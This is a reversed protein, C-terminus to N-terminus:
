SFLKQYELKFTNNKAMIDTLIGVGIGKKYAGSNAILLFNERAQKMIAITSDKFETNVYDYDDSEKISKTELGKLRKHYELVSRASGELQKTVQKSTIYGQIDNLRRDFAKNLGALDQELSISQKGTIKYNVERDGNEHAKAENQKTTKTTSTSSASYSQAYVNSVVSSTNIAM